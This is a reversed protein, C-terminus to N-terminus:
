GLYYFYFAPKLYVDRYVKYAVLAAFVQPTSFMMDAEEQDLTWKFAGNLEYTLLAEILDVGVTQYEESRPDIAHAILGFIVSATSASNASGWSSVGDETLNEKIYSTMAEVQTDVGEITTYPALA